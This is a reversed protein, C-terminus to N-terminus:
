KIHCTTCLASGTNPMRLFPQNANEHVDHCSACDLLGGSGLLAAVAPTIAPDYLQGDNGSLITDYVIGVPHDNSMGPGDTGLNGGTLTVDGAVGTAVIAAGTLITDNFIEASAATGDHCSFCLPTAGLDFNQAGADYTASTGAPDYQTFGPDTWTDRNWLPANAIGTNSGHPTHCFVCSQDSGTTGLDGLDHATGGVAAFAPAALLSAAVVMLLVKKMNGEEMKDGAKVPNILVSGIGATPVIMLVGGVENLPM